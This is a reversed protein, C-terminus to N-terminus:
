GLFALEQYSSANHKRIELLAKDALKESIDNIQIIKEKLLKTDIV